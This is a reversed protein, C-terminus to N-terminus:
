EDDDGDVAIAEPAFDSATLRKRETDSLLGHRALYSAESEVLPPNSPDIAPGPAEGWWTKNEETVWVLPLGYAMQEHGWPTGCGGVKQRLLPEGNDLTEHRWWAAPRTGPWQKIYDPLFTHGHEAWLEAATPHGQFPARDVPGTLLDHELEILYPQGAPLPEDKLFATQAANLGAAGTTKHKIAM